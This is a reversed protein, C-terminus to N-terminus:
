PLCSQVFRFKKKIQQQAPSHTPAPSNNAEAQRNLHAVQAVPARRDEGRRRRGRTKCRRLPAKAGRRARRQQGAPPEPRHMDCPTMEYARPREASNVRSELYTQKQTRACASLQCPRGPAFV